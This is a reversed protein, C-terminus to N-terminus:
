DNYVEPLKKYTIILSVAESIVGVSCVISVVAINSEFLGSLGDGLELATKFGGLFAGFLGMILVLAASNKILLTSPRLLAHFFLIVAATPLVEWPKLGMILGGDVGIFAAIFAGAELMLWARKLSSFAGPVSRFYKNGPLNRHIASRLFGYFAVAAMIFFITYVIAALAAAKESPVFAIEVAIVVAALCAFIVIDKRGIFRFHANTSM